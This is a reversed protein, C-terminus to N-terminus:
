AVATSTVGVSAASGPGVGIAIGYGFGIAVSINGISFAVTRTVAETFTSAGSALANAIAQAFGGGPQPSGGGTFFGGHTHRGGVVLDTEELTLLRFEPMTKPQIEATFGSM